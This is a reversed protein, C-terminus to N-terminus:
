FAINYSVKFLEPEQLIKKQGNLHASFQVWSLMLYEASDYKKYSKRKDKLLLKRSSYKGQPLNGATMLSFRKLHATFVRPFPQKAVCKRIWGPHVDVM